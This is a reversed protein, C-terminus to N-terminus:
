RVRFVNSSESSLTRKNPSTATTVVFTLVDPMNWPLDKSTISRWVSTQRQSCPPHFHMKVWSDFRCSYLLWSVTQNCFDFFLIIVNFTFRGSMIVMAPKSRASTSINRAAPLGFNEVPGVASFARAASRYNANASCFLSVKPITRMSSLPQATMVECPSMASPGSTKGLQILAPCRISNIVEELMQVNATNMMVVVGDGGEISGFYQSMFGDDSGEHGFYKRSGRQEIFVGLVVTSDVYPTLMLQANRQNLVKASKGAVSLQIEVIYKSLETPNTWLGAAALAPFNHYKEELERGDDFYSTALMQKKDAPPPQYITSNMELPQLVNIYM